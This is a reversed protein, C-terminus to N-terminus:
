RPRFPVVRSREEAAQMAAAIADVLAAQGFPKPLKV